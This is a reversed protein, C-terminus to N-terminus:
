PEALIACRYPERPLPPMASAGVQSVCTSAPETGGERGGGGCRARTRGVCRARGGLVGLWEGKEHGDDMLCAYDSVWGVKRVMQWGISLPLPGILTVALPWSM